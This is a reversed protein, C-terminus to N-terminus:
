DRPSPSTYLLCATLYEQFGLHLFGFSGGSWGTLLGSEDRIRALFDAAGGGGRRVRALEPELVPVLEDAPARTRGEEGHLWHALPQLVRRALRAEMSVGLGKASRWHELLLLTCEEYLDVRRDPLRRGHRFVLCIATLLLPNRTLELVKRARMDPDALRQRKYM